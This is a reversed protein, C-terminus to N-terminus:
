KQMNNKRYQLPTEGIRNKFSSIFYTVDSFGVALAIDNVSIPSRLLLECSKRLRFTTLYDHVKEGTEHHFRRSVYSRSKGLYDALNDLSFKATYNEEIWLMIKTSILNDQVTLMSKHEPLMSFLTLLLCIASESDLQNKETLQAYRVFLHDLFDHIDAVDAIFAESGRLSIQSLQQYNKPFNKLIPLIANQDIHIITRRYIETSSEEIMIKHLTLPPFFFIRGPRLTYHKNDVIVVGYGQEVYLMELCQHWHHYRVSNAYLRNFSVINDNLSILELRESKEKEDM